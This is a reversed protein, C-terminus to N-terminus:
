FNLNIAFFAVAVSHSSSYALPEASCLKCGNEHLRLSFRDFSSSGVVSRPFFNYFLSTYFNGYVQFYCLFVKIAM